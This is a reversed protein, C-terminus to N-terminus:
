KKEKRGDNMEQIKGCKEIYKKNLFEEKVNEVMDMLQQYIEEQNEIEMNKMLVANWKELAKEIQNQVEHGKETLCIRNCRQDNEDKSKTVFEKQILAQIIRTVASKDMYFHAALEEQTVGNKKNLLILIPYEGSTVGAEKLEMGLFMQGKRYLISLLRGIRKTM